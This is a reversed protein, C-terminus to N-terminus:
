HVKRSENNSTGLPEAYKKAMCELMGPISGNHSWAEIAVQGALMLETSDVIFEMAKDPLLRSAMQMGKVVQSIAAPIIECVLYSLHVFAFEKGAEGDEEIIKQLCTVTDLVRLRSMEQLDVAQEGGKEKLALLFADTRPTGKNLKEEFYKLQDDSLEM